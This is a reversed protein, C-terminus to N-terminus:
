LGGDDEMEEEAGDDEMAPDEDDEDCGEDEDDLEEEFSIRDAEEPATICSEHQAAAPAEHAALELWEPYRLGQFGGGRRRLPVVPPRLLLERLAAPAPGDDAAGSQPSGVFVYYLDEGHRFVAGLSAASAPAGPTAVTMRWRGDLTVDADVRGQATFALCRCTM